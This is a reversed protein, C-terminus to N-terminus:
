FTACEQAGDEPASLIRVVEALVEETLPKNFFAKVADYSRAREMDRPALSTTLMVVVARTFADGFEATARELFEFGSMKPMNIDLFIADIEPRDDRRLYALAEEAYYFAIVDGVLGSRAAKRQCIMHDIESDDILMITRLPVDDALARALTQGM